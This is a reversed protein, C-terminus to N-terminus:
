WEPRDVLNEAPDFFLRYLKNMRETTENVIHAPERKIDIEWGFYLRKWYEEGVKDGLVQKINNIDSYRKMARDPHNLRNWSTRLEMGHEGIMNSLSEVNAQVFSQLDPSQSTNLHMYVGLENRMAPAILLLDYYNDVYEPRGTPHFPITLISQNITRSKYKYAYELGEVNSHHPVNDRHKTYIEIRDLHHDVEFALKVLQHEHNTFWERTQEFEDFGSFKDYDENEFMDQLIRISDTTPDLSQVREAVEYWSLWKANTGELPNVTHDTVAYLYVDRGESNQDMELKRLEETLQKTKPVSSGTKSEYGVLKDTDGVVWDLTRERDNEPHNALASRRQTAVIEAQDTFQLDDHIANLVRPNHELSWSLLSIFFDNQSEEDRIHRFFTRKSM